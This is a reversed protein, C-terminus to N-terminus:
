HQAVDLGGKPTCVNQKHKRQIRIYIYIKVFVTRLFRVIKLFISDHDHDAPSVVEIWFKFFLLNIDDWPAAKFLNAISPQNKKIQMSTYM